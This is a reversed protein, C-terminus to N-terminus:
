PRLRFGAQTVSCARLGLDVAGASIKRVTNESMVWSLVVFDCEGCVQYNRVMHLINDVAMNKTERNGVFPHIDLCWDGDIFAARGLTDCLATGVTTKGVGM